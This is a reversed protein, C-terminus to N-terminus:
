PAETLVKTTSPELRLVWVGWRNGNVVYVLKRKADYLWGQCYQRGAPWAGDIDLLMWRNGACDYARVYKKVKADDTEPYPEGFLVWDAHDVYVMERAQRIRGLEANAPTLKRIRRDEFRFSVLTGDGPTQWPTEALLMRDRKTDYVMTTNDVLCTPVPLGPKTLETWGKARDFLWLGSHKSGRRVRAWAVVGHGSPELITSHCQSFPPKIPGARIWDMRDPDYLYGLHFIMLKCRPDYAYFNWTHGPVWPRGMTTVGRAGGYSYAEQADYGEVMRGSLPSYHLPPNESRVCHGGGWVIIQDRDPDWVATSWVRNRCGVCVNRPPDPLKVFRNNPLQDLNTEPPPDPVECCSARFIGKRYQRQNPPHGLKHGPPSDLKGPDIKMRWAGGRSVLFVTDADDAALPPPSYKSIYGYYRGWYRPRATDDPKLTWSTRLDWRDAAVDYLWMQIPEAPGYSNRASNDYNTASRQIYGGYLLIKGSAPLYTMAHGARPGPARLPAARRWGTGPDLIWTDNTLYDQHDGGFLVLVDSGADYVLPSNRRAPPVPYQGEAHAEVRAQVARAAKLADLTKGASLLKGYGALGGRFRAMGPMGALAASRQHLSRREAETGIGKPDRYWALRTRGILEVLAERAAVLQRHEAVVAAPPPPLRRWQRSALDYIVTRSWGVNDPDNDAGLVVLRRRRTDMAMTLWDMEKLVPDRPHAKWTKSPVDYSHLQGEQLFYGGTPGLVQSLCYVRGTKPDRAIRYAPYVSRNPAAKSHSSWAKSGADFAQVDPVNRGRPSGGLFLLRDPGAGAILAAGERWVPPGAGAREWTNATGAALCGPAPGMALTLASFLVVAAPRSKIM